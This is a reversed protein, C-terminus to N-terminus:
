KKLISNILWGVITMVMAGWFAPWFGTVSFGDLFSAVFWFLAGNIVFAFFGLTLVTIPLTLFILIPRLIANMLGLVFATIFAAYWGVVEVGPLYYAIGLLTAASLFWRVLIM